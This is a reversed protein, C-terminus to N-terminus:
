PEERVIVRSGEVRVVTVTTGEPLFLGETVVDVRRGNILATGSPRLPTIAAGSHGVLAALDAPATTYGEEHRQASELRLWRWLGTRPIFRAGVAIVAASGLATLVGATPSLRTYATATGGFLLGLGAIGPLGFGPIVLMEILLLIFGTVILTLVLLWDPM